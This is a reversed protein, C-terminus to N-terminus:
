GRSDRAHGPVEVLGYLRDRTLGPVVQLYATNM